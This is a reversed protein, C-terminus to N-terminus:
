IQPVSISVGLTWTIKPDSYTMKSTMGSNFSRSLSGTEVSIGEHIFDKDYSSEISFFLLIHAVSLKFVNDVWRNSEVQNANVVDIPM